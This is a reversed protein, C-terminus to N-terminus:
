CVLRAAPWIGHRAMSDLAGPCHRHRRRRRRRAGSRRGGGVASQKCRRGGGCVCVNQLFPMLSQATGRVSVSVHAPRARVLYPRQERWHVTRPPAEALHRMFLLRDSPSELGHVKLEAPFHHQIFSLLSKRVDTRMRAPAAELDPVVPIIVPCGQAQLSGLILLGFADVEVQSSMALVVYDAIQCGRANGAPQASASGVANPPAQGEKGGVGVGGRGRGRAGGGGAAATLRRGGEHRGSHRLPQRRGRVHHVAAPLARVHMARCSVLRARASRRARGTETLQSAPQSLSARERSSRM